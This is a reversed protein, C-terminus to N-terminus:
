TIQFWERSIDIFTFHVLIKYCSYLYFSICIIYRALLQDNYAQNSLFVTEILAVLIIQAERFHFCQTQEMSLSWLTFTRFEWLKNQIILFSLFFFFLFYLVISLGDVSWFLLRWTVTHNYLHIVKTMNKKKQWTSWKRQYKYYM